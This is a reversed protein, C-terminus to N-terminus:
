ENNRERVAMDECWKRYAKAFCDIFDAVEDLKWTYDNGGILDFRARKMLSAYDPNCGADSLFEFWTGEDRWLQDELDEYSYHPNPM